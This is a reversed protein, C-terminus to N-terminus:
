GIAMRHNARPRLARLALGVMCIASFAFYSGLWYFSQAPSTPDLTMWRLVFALFAAAFGVSVVGAAGLLWEEAVRGRSARATAFEYMGVSTAMVIVLIAITRFTLHRTAGLAVMLGFMGCALGNLVLLWSSGKRGSWLAAAITCVGAALALLGLQTIADRTYFNTRLVISGNSTQMLLIMASFLAYLLGGVALLWWSKVLTQM